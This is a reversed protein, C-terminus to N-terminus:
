QLPRHDAGSTAARTLVFLDVMPASLRSSLLAVGGSVESMAVRVLDHDADLRYQAVTWKGAGLGRLMIRYAGRQPYTVARHPLLTLDFLNPVHMVDPHRRPGRHEPAIEYNSILVQITRGDVSRGALAALGNTDAGTLALRVPTTAFKGTAILAQGVKTPTGRLESDARYFGDLDIPADQMYIRASAVFAARQMAPATRETFDYNWEDLFSKTHAFGYRDLLKRINAGIINFDYPDDADVSYWHWSFFDLPLHRAKAFALFGDKWPTAENVLAVTSGGVQAHPDAAKVAGVAAAYFDYYQQPTGQWWIKGLDPENWVEWYRVRDTFGNAWGKNYHLVIHRIISAYRSLDTPPPVSARGERGLRFLVDAGIAHIADLMKDTLAFNYSAPNDPDAMIDPFLVNLDMAREQALSPGRMPGDGQPPLAQASASVHADIDGVGDADHTRVVNVAAARYAASIDQAPRMRPDIRDAPVFTLDPVGNVARLPKITGVPRAADVKIVPEEVTQAAGSGLPWLLTTTLLAGLMCFRRNARHITM